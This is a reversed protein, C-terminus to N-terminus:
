LDDVSVFLSMQGSRSPCDGDDAFKGVRHVGSQIVVLLLPCASRQTSDANEVHLDTRMVSRRELKMTM